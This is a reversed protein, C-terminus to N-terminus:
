YTATGSCLWIGSARITTFNGTDDTVSVQGGKLELANDGRLAIRFDVDNGANNQFTISPNLGGTANTDALAIVPNGPINPDNVQLLIDSGRTDTIRMQRYVGYPAPYYTSITITEDAANSTIGFSVALVALLM